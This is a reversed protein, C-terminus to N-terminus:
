IPNDNTQEKKQSKCPPAAICTNANHKVWEIAEGITKCGSYLVDRMGSALWFYDELDRYGTETDRYGFGTRRDLITISGLNTHLVQTIEEDWSGEDHTITHFMTTDLPTDCTVGKWCEKGWQNTYKEPVTM